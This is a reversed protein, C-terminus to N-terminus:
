KIPKTKAPDILIKVPPRTSTGPNRQIYPKNPQPKPPAM